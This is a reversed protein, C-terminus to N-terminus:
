SANCRLKNLLLNLNYKGSQDRQVRLDMPHQRVSRFLRYALHLRAAQGVQVGWPWEVM